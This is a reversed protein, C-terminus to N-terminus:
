WEGRFFVLVVPAKGRFDSLSLEAGALTQLTFSPAENGIAPGIEAVAPEEGAAAAQEAAAAPLTAALLAALLLLHPLHRRM